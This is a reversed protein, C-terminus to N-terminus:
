NELRTTKTSDDSGNMWTRLMSTSWDNQGYTNRSSDFRPYYYLIGNKKAALAYKCLLTVNYGAFAYETEDVTISMPVSWTCNNGYTFSASDVEVVTQGNTEYNGSDTKIYVTDGKAIASLLGGDEKITRVYIRDDGNKYKVYEPISTNYGLVEWETDVPDSNIDVKYPVILSTGIAPLAKMNPYDELMESFKSWNVRLGKEGSSSDADNIVVVGDKCYVVVLHTEGENNIGLDWAAVKEAVTEAEMEDLILETLKDCDIFCGDQIEATSTGLDLSEINKYDLSTIISRKLGDSAIGRQVETGDDYTAKLIISPEIANGDKDKTIGVATIGIDAINPILSKVEAATRGKFTVSNLNKISYFADRGITTVNAPITVAGLNYCAICCKPSIETVKSGIELKTLETRSNTNSM